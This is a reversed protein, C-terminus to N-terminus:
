GCEQCVESWEGPTGTEFGDAFILEPFPVQTTVRYEVDVCSSTNECSFGIWGLNEAWAYGSFDGTLTDIVVGYDVTACSNTNACSFSVWGANESWGYGALNGGGDNTIGFSVTDCGAFNECSLNVWGANESWAWGRVHDTFVTAGFSSSQLIDMTTPEFNVWGANESWAFQAGEDFPDITAAGSPWCGLAVIAIVATALRRNM